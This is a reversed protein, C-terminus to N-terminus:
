GIMNYFIFVSEGVNECLLKLFIFDVLIIMCVKIDWWKFIECIFFLRKM